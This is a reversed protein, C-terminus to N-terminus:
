EGRIMMATAVAWTVGLGVLAPWGFISVVAFGFVGAALYLLGIWFATM